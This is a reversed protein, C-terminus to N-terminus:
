PTAFSPQYPEPAPMYPVVAHAMSDPNKYASRDTDQIRTSDSGPSSARPDASTATPRSENHNLITYPRASQQAKSTICRSPSKQVGRSRVEIQIQRRTLLARTMLPRGTRRVGPQCHCSSTRHIMCLNKMPLALARVNPRSITNPRLERAQIRDWAGHGCGPGCGADADQGASRRRGDCSWVGAGPCPVWTPQSVAAGGAAAIHVLTTCFGLRNKFCGPSVNAVSMEFLHFVQFLAQFMRTYAYYCTCCRSINKCCRSLVSAVYTHSMHFVEFMRTSGYCCICRSPVSSVYLQFVLFM